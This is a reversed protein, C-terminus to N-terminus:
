AVPNVAYCLSNYGMGQLLRYHFLFGLSFGWFSSDSHQVGSILVTNYTLWIWNFFFAPMEEWLGYSESNLSSTFINPSIFTNPTKGDELCKCLLSPCLLKLLLYYEGNLSYATSYFIIIQLGPARFVKFECHPLHGTTWAGEWAM